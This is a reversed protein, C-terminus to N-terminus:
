FGLIDSSLERGRNACPCKCLVIQSRSLKPRMHIIAKGGNQTTGTARAEKKRDKLQHCDVLRVEAHFCCYHRLAYSSLYSSFLPETFHLSPYLLIHLADTVTCVAM